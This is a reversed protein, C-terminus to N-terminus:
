RTEYKKQGRVSELLEKGEETIIWGDDWAIGGAAALKDIFVSPQLPREDESRGLMLIDRDRLLADVEAYPRLEELFSLIEIYTDFREPVIALLNMLRTATNFEGIVAVGVENTQYAIDIALDDIEDESLRAKREDTIDKGETDLEFVDLAGTDALWQILFYPPQTASKAEPLELIFAELEHLSLRKSV